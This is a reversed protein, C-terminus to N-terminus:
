LNKQLLAFTDVSRLQNNSRCFRKRIEVITKPLYLRPLNPYNAGTRKEFFNVNCVFALRTRQRIYTYQEHKIYNENTNM